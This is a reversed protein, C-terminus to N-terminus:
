NEKPGGMNSLKGSLSGNLNPPNQSMVSGMKVELWLKMDQQM